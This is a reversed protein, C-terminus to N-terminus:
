PPSDYVPEIVLFSSRTRARTHVRVQFIGTRRPTLAKTQRAGVTFSTGLAPFEIVVAEVGRNYVGVSEGLNVRIIDPSIRAGDVTLRHQSGARIGAIGIGLCLAIIGLAWVMRYLSAPITTLWQSTEKWRYTLWGLPLGYALHGSYAIALAPVNGRLAFIRGFPTVVAISELILGWVIGGVWHKGPVCLAYAIGFTIGNSFHYLWGVVDTLPTSSGSSTIWVGYVQNPVFVRYGAWAFPTRYLDYAITGALGGALGVQLMRVLDINGQRTAVCAILVLGVLSPLVIFPVTVSLPAFGYVHALLSAGSPASLALALWRLRSGGLIRRAHVEM